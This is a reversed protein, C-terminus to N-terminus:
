AAGGKLIATALAEVIMPDYDIRKELKDIREACSEIDYTMELQDSNIRSHSDEM